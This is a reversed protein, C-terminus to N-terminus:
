TPTCLKCVLLFKGFGVGILENLYNYKKVQHELGGIRKFSKFAQFTELNLNLVGTAKCYVKENDETLTNDDIDLEM